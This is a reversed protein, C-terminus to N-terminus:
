EVLKGKKRLIVNAEIELANAQKRLGSLVREAAELRDKRPETPEVRSGGAWRLFIKRLNM